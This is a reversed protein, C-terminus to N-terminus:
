WYDLNAGFDPIGGTRVVETWNHLDEVGDSWHQACAEFFELVVEREERELLEKALIMNPGFVGGPFRPVDAAALLRKRAEQLDNSKLAIRGLIINAYHADESCRGAYPAESLKSMLELAWRHAGELKGAEFAVMALDPLLSFRQHENSRHFLAELHMLGAAAEQQRLDVSCSSLEHLHLDALSRSTADDPKLAHVRNLIESALAKEHMIFFHAANLAIRTNDPDNALHGLWLTRAESYAEQDIVADLRIASTGAVATDPTNRIIWRIHEQRQKVQTNSVSSNTICYGLLAIRLALAHPNQALAEQFEAVEHLNLKRGSGLLAVTAHNRIDADTDLLAEGLALVAQLSHASSLEMVALGRVMPDSHKFAEILIPLRQELTGPDTSFSNAM